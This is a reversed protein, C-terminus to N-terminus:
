ESALFHKPPGSYGISTWSQTEAYVSGIILKHLGKYAVRLLEFHSERWEYLFEAISEDSAASWNKWVNAVLLRGLMSGMLTFLERLESQTRLPLRIIAADINQMVRQITLNKLTNTNSAFVPILVELIILDDDSLFQYSYHVDEILKNQNQLHWQYAGIGGLGLVTSSIISKLLARRKM